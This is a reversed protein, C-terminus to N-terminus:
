NRFEVLLLFHCIKASQKVRKGQHGQERPKSNRHAGLGLRELTNRVGSDRRNHAAFSSLLAVVALALFWKRFDAM